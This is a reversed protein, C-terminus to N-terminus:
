NYTVTVVASARPDRYYIYSNTGADIQLNDPVSLGLQLTIVGNGRFINPNADFTVSDAFFEERAEGSPGDFDVTGDFVDLFDSMAPTTIRLRDIVNNNYLITFSFTAPELTFMGSDTPHTNEYGWVPHAVGDITITVNNIFPSQKVDVDHFTYVPGDDITKSQVILPILIPILLYIRKM